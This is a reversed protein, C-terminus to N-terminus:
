HIRRPNALVLAGVSLMALATPEPIIPAIRLFDIEVNLRGTSGFQSQIQIQRLGPDVTNNGATFGFAGQTFLPSSLPQTLLHFAGDNPVGTLDFEYVHEDASGSGDDDIFTSRIATAGNNPLLKIRLEWQHTAADFDQPVFDGSTPPSEVIFDVGLGGFVGNSANTDTVDLVIGIASETVAAGGFDEFTFAGFGNVPDNTPISNEDFTITAAQAASALGAVVFCCVLQTARQNM